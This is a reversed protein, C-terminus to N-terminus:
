YCIMEFGIEAEFTRNWPLSFTMNKPICNMNAPLIESKKESYIASLTTFIPQLLERSYKEVQRAMEEPREFGSRNNQRFYENAKPRVLTHFAYDDVLRHTTFWKQALLVKLSQEPNTM